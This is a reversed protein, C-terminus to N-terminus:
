ESPPPAADLDFEEGYADPSEAEEAKRQGAARESAVVSRPRTPRACNPNGARYLGYRLTFNAFTGSGAFHGIQLTYWGANPTNAVKILPCLTCGGVLGDDNRFTSGNPAVLVAELDADQATVQLRLCRNRPAFIELTWSLASLPFRGGGGLAGLTGSIRESSCNVTTCLASSPDFVRTGADAQDLPAFSAAVGLAMCRFVRAIKM